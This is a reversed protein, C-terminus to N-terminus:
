GADPDVVFGLSWGLGAIMVSGQMYRKLEDRYKALVKEYEPMRKHPQDDRNRDLADIELGARKLINTVATEDKIAAGKRLYGVRIHGVRALLKAMTLEVDPEEFPDGPAPPDGPKIRKWSDDLEPDFVDAITASPKPPAATAITSAAATIAVSTTTTATSVGPAIPSTPKPDDRMVVLLGAIALIGVAISVAVGRNM